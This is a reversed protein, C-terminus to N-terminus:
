ALEYRHRIVRPSSGELWTPDSARMAAISLTENHAGFFLLSRKQFQLPRYV